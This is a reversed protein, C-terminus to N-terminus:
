SIRGDGIEKILKMFVKGKPGCEAEVGMGDMHASFGLDLSFRVLSRRRLNHFGMRLLQHYNLRNNGEMAPM